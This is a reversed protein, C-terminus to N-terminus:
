NAVVEGLAGVTLGDCVAEVVVTMDVPEVVLGLAGVCQGEVALHRAVLQGHGTDPDTVVVDVRQLVWEDDCADDSCPRARSFPSRLTATKSERRRDASAPGRRSM